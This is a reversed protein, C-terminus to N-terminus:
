LQEEEYIVEIGACRFLHQGIQIPRSSGLPIQERDIVSTINSPDETRLVNYAIAKQSAINGSRDLMEAIMKRGGVACYLRSETEGSNRPPTKKWPASYKDVSNMPALIGFNSHKGIDVSLWADAIKDLLMTYMPAIRFSDKTTIKKGSRGIYSIPGYVLKFSEEIEYVMQDYHKQTEIPIYLYLHKNIISQVWKLREEDTLEETFERYTRESVISYLKLMTGVGRAYRDEPIALVDDITITGRFNRDLGFEELMQKRIDRAAGAFYPGYLRAINMRGPISDPGTIIDARNGDADVPMNEPEEIRCFVGKGGNVCTAKFGHTPIVNYEVTFTVMWGDLPEKRYNLIIEKKTFSHRHNVVARAEVLLQQFKPSTKLVGTGGKKKDEFVMRSEFKLIDRYFRLYARSYKELQQTMEGPLQLNINSSKVVTLDVIRGEGPRVYVRNDFLHDVKRVDERSLLAPALFADLRRSAVLLGDDRIAEGIDPFAKYHEDDGYLNLLFDNAGFNVTRTEYMKFGLHPLVDRSVVYGDLGVNPHSMVVVNLNRGFTYHTEGKIAPSDRFVTDKPFERGYALEREAPKSEYKFGFTPHYSAYYPLVFYSIEGTEYSQYFVTTEPNFPINDDGATNAYRPLVMLIIGDEPMKVNFTYKGFEEEVGTQILNPETGDIVLRQAFHGAFMTGRVSSNYPSGFNLSHISLLETALENELEPPKQTDAM